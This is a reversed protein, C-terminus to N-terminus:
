FNTFQDLNLTLCISINDTKIKTTTTFNKLRFNRFLDESDPHSLINEKKIISPTFNQFSHHNNTLATNQM